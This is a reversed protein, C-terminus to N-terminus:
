DVIPLIATRPDKKGQRILREDDDLAWCVAFSFGLAALIILCIGLTIQWLPEKDDPSPSFNLATSIAIIARVDRIFAIARRAATHLYAFM